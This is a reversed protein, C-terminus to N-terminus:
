ASDYAGHTTLLEVIQQALQESLNDRRWFWKRNPIIAVCMTPNGLRHELSVHVFASGHVIDYSATEKRRVGRAVCNSSLPICEFGTGDVISVFEDFMTPPADLILANAKAMKSPRLRTHETPSRRAYGLPPSLSVVEFVASGGSRNM